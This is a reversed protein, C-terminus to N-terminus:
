KVQKIKVSSDLTYIEGTREDQIMPTTLENIEIFVIKGTKGNSLIVDRNRVFSVFRKAFQKAIKQDFRLAYKNMVEDIVNFPSIGNKVTQEYYHDCFSLIKAFPDMKNGELGFPYGTGDLREHHQLVAIKAQRTLTPLKEIMKYAVIPHKEAKPHFAPSDDALDKVIQSLGCDALFAAFGIQLSKGQDYGAIMGTYASLISFSVASSYINAPDIKVMESFIFDDQKSTRELLPIILKRVASMDIPIQNQWDSFMAKYQQVAYMYHQSLPLNPINNEQETIIARQNPDPRFLEGNELKESVNVSEVQFKHLFTIHRDTLVTKAPILPDKTKGMVDTIVVCGPILQETKVLM